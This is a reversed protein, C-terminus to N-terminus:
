HKRVFGKEDCAEDPRILVPKEIQKGKLAQLWRDEDLGHVCEGSDLDLIFYGRVSGETDSRAAYGLVLDDVIQMRQINPPVAYGTDGQIYCSGANVRILSYEGTLEYSFDSAAGGGRWAVLLAMVGITSVLLLGALGVVLVGYMVHTKKM